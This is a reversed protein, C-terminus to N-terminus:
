AQVRPILSAPYDSWSVMEVRTVGSKAEMASQMFVASVIDDTVMYRQHSGENWTVRHWGSPLPGVGMSPLTARSM